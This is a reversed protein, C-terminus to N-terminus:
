RKRYVEDPYFSDEQMPLRDEADRFGVAGKSIIGGHEAYLWTGNFAGKERAERILNEMITKKDM